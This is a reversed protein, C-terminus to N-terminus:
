VRWFPKQAERVAEDRTLGIDRLIHEDLQELDHRYRIRERWVQLMETAMDFAEGPFKFFSYVRAALQEDHPLLADFFRFANM